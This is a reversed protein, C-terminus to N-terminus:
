ITSVGSYNLGKYVHRCLSYISQTSNLTGNFVNYTMDPVAKQPDLSGVLLTLAIFFTTARLIPNFGV